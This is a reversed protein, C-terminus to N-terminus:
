RCLLCAVSLVLIVKKQLLRFTHVNVHWTCAHLHDSNSDAHQVTKTVVSERATRYFTCEALLKLSSFILYLKSHTLMPHKHSLKYAHLWYGRCVLYWQDDWLPDTPPSYSKKVRKQIVQQEVLGVQLFSLLNHGYSVHLRM